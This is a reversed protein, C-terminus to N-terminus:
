PKLKLHKVILTNTDVFDKWDDKEDSIVTLNNDKDIILTILFYVDEVDTIGCETKSEKVTPVLKNSSIYSELKSRAITIRDSIEGHIIDELEALLEDIYELEKM